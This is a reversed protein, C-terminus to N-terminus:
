RRSGQAARQGGQAKSPSEDHPLYGQRPGPVVVTPYKFPLGVVVPEVAGLSRSRALSCAPRDHNSKSRRERARPSNLPADATRPMASIGLTIDVIPAPSASFESIVSPEPAGM